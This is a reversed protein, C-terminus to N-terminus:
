GLNWGVRRLLRGLGSAKAGFRWLSAGYVGFRERELRPVAGSTRVDVAWVQQYRAGAATRVREDYDGLPYAFLDVTREAAHELISQADALERGLQEDSCSTLYPHTVTHSGVEILPDAALTRIEDANLGDAIDRAGDAGLIEAPSPLTRAIEEVQSPEFSLLRARLATLSAVRAGPSTRDYLTGAVELPTGPGFLCAVHVRSFWLADLGVLFGAAVFVTAPLQYRALIPYACDIFNAFGDDFTLAVRPRTGRRPLTALDRAPVVEYFRRLWRMQRDFTDVTPNRLDPFQVYHGRRHIGHFLLCAGDPILVRM